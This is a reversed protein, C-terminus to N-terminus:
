ARNLYLIQQTLFPQQTPSDIIPRNGSQKSLIVTHIAPNPTTNPWVQQHYQNRKEGLQRNRSYISRQASALTNQYDGHQIQVEQNSTPQEKYFLSQGIFDQTTRHIKRNINESEKNNRIIETQGAGISRESESGADIKPNGDFLKINDLQREMEDMVITSLKTHLKVLKHDLQQKMTFFVDENKHSPECTNPAYPMAIDNNSVMRRKLLKMTQELEFNRAELHQCRTELLNKENKLEQLSKEKMKLQNEAKKMKIEKTRLDGLKVRAPEDLNQQIKPKRPKPIPKIKPTESVVTPM